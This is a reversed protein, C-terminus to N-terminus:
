RARVLMGQAGRKLGIGCDGDGVVTDFRTIDPEAAVVGELARVLAAQARAPDELALGSPGPAQQPAAVHDDRIALAARPASWTEARVPASWGTVECPADLLDLMGAAMHTDVLRLLSVSFGRADLSTVVAGAWVRVPRVGYGDRLQAVVEATVGGMELASLGGLNNVLLVVADAAADVALFARDRDGPDLLQALMTAVLRPLHLGARGYGPENHIGMGIEAEDPGPGGGGGADRAWGPVHVHDLSAGVSAVNAAALRAVRAVEDLPSGRAAAAGAAKLVLVTGAIGRRGVKGARARGVGVDDGVVMDVRLGAARVEEVAVGFNLVDGTYNMVVVLAGGARADVPGTLAARVQAASPSAFITGAVAASVLHTPDNIFHKRSAM